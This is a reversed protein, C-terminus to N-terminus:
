QNLNSARVEATLRAKREFIPYQRDGGSRLLAFVVSERVCCLLGRM